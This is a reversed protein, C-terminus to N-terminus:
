DLFEGYKVSGSLENGCERADAVQNNNNNNNFYFITKVAGIKVM